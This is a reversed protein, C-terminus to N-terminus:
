KVRSDNSSIAGATGETRGAGDDRRALHGMNQALGVPRFIDVKRFFQDVLYVRGDEDVDIGAPLMYKGPGAQNARGGIFLLLQGEPNFIQFNGFAADAVYVNGQGDVAIGKPRTFQGFQAGMAGFTRVFTGDLRFVQVRFNGGDVVYLHGDRTVEVDRPLNFTGPDTGRAGIDYLHKGDSVSYVRIRHDRSDVGGTDVMFVRSGDAQVAVHSLHRFSAADGVSTLYKGSRDYVFVKKHSTDAVYVRCEDDTAVGLPKLLAGPDAEGIRFYRRGPFDFAVIRRQVTDSVYVVGRCVSVDFPKGLHEGGETEGTLVRRWQSASEVKNVQASTMLTMEFAYRADEPPAPFLIPAM